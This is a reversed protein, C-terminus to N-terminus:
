PTTSLQGIDCVMNIGPTNTDKKVTIPSPGPAQAICAANVGLSDVYAWFMGVCEDQGPGGRWGVLVAAYTGTEIGDLKFDYISGQPIADSFRDPPGTPPFKSFVTVLIGGTGPWQDAHRFTITGSISGTPGSPAASNDSGCSLAASLLAVGTIVVVSRWLQMNM